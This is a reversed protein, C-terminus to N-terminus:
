DKKEPKALLKAIWRTSPFHECAIAAAATLPVAILAGAIGWVWSWFALAVVIAVPSLALSRGQLLPYIFNSIALQIVGLGAFVLLPTTWGGFQALAYITPPVIGILNGIVPIFNLLFNLVGWTLSLEVGMAWTFGATAAGTLVSTALTVGFYARVKGAITVIATVAERRADSDLEDRLKRRFGPVEPLGLIVLVAVFGLYAAANYLGAVALQIAGSVRAGSVRGGLPLGHRAAWAAAENYAAELAPWHVTLARVVQAAAFYVAAAFGALLALLALVTLAYSAGSPLFRDLWPKLPWVAAIVVLAFAMPMTVPYSERLAAVTLLFTLVALLRNRATDSAFM